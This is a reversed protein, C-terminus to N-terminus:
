EHDGAEEVTQLEERAAERVFDPVDVDDVDEESIWWEVGEVNEVVAVREGPMPESDVHSSSYEYRHVEVDDVTAQLMEDIRPDDADVPEGTREEIRGLAQGHAFRRPHDIRIV